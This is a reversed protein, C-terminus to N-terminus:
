EGLNHQALFIQELEVLRGVRALLESEDIDGRAYLKRLIRELRETLFVFENAERVEGGRLRRELIEAAAEFEDAAELFWVDTQRAWDPTRGARTKAALDRAMALAMEYDDLVHRTLNTAHLMWAWREDPADAFHRWVWRAAARQRAADDVASYVKAMMFHPYDSRADLAVARDLWAGLAAYDLRRFSYARGSQDDFAQIRLALLKAAVAKEGLALANFFAQPPPAGVAAWRAVPPPLAFHYFALQAALALAILLYWWRARPAMARLPMYEDGVFLRLRLRTM